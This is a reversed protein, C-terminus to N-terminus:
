FKSLKSKKVLVKEEVMDLIKMEEFKMQFKNMRINDEVDLLTIKAVKGLPVDFERIFYQKIKESFKNKAIDNM